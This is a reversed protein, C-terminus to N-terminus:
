INGYLTLCPPSILKRFGNIAHVMCILSWRKIPFILFEYVLLRQTGTACYGLISVLHRHHVRSIIEIEARFEQEGQRSGAKLQKIAVETGDPLVGKDVYGFGGQGIFNVNSFNDTAQALDEYTFMNNAM